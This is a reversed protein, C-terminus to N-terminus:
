LQLTAPGDMLQQEGIMLRCTESNFHSWNGNTLASQLETATIQGSRDADVAVFWAYVSPDVGPPPGSQPPPAGACVIPSPPSSFLLSFHEALTDSSLPASGWM